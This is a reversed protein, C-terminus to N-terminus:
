IIFMIGKLEDQSAYRSNNHSNKKNKNLTEFRLNSIDSNEITNEINLDESASVEGLIEGYKEM